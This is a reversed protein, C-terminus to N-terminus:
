AVECGAAASYLAFWSQRDLKVQCAKGLNEIRQLNNTGLVPIIGAPHSLLWAIAIHDVDCQHEEALRSLLPQLRLAASSDSFLQGGALPSWAMARIDDIQMEALTGDTFSKQQLLNIEIQNVIIKHQMYKQLLRWDSPMFNSVGIARVKGSDILQDLVAATKPADMFPDPRHLMLLDLYDTHLNKLSNNVSSNIYAASTDYHKVSRQPFKASPIAINCKSILQMQSRLEPAQALAKGFLQECQYDGYIDAHDFSSIGQALCADIKARTHTISTDTDDALRWVGYVLASLKLSQQLNHAQIM